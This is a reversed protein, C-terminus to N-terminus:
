RKQRRKRWSALPFALGSTILVLSAPEPVASTDTSTDALGSVTLDQLAYFRTDSLSVSSITENNMTTLFIWNDTNNNTLGTFTHMMPGDNTTVLFSVTTIPVGADTTPFVGFLNMYMDAFSHGPSTITLQDISTDSSGVPNALLQVTSNAFLQDTGSSGSNNTSVNITVGGASGALTYTTGGTFTGTAGPTFLVAQEGPGTSPATHTVTGFVVDARVAATMSLFLVATIACRTLQRYM